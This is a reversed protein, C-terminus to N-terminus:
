ETVPLMININFINKDQKISLNGDYKKVIENVNKLGLGHFNKNNKTTEPYGNKMILNRDNYNEFHIHIIKNHRRIYFSAVRKEINAQKKLSEIVNDLLNGFVSYIDLIKMFDINAGDAICTLTIGYKECQLLKEMLILDLTENGTKLSSNYILVANEIETIANDKETGWEMNRLATIQHKLDHCKKNIININDKSLEHKARESNLVQEMRENDKTLNSERLLDLQIFLVLLDSFIAYLFFYINQTIDPISTSLFTALFMVAIVGISIRVKNVVWCDYSKLKSIVFKYIIYYVVCLCVLTTFFSKYSGYNFHLLNILLRHLNFVLNQMAYATAGCFLVENFKSEFSWYLGFLTLFFFIIFIFNLLNRNIGVSSFNITIIHYIFITTVSFIITRLYTYKNKKLRISFLLEAIILQFAFEEFLIYITNM